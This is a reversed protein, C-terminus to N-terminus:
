EPPHDKPSGMTQDPTPGQSGEPHLDEFRGVPLDGNAEKARKVIAAHRARDKDPIPTRTAGRSLFRRFQAWKESHSATHDFGAAIHRTLDETTIAM